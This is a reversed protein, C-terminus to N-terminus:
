ENKKKDGLDIELFTLIGEAIQRAYEEKNNIFLENDNKNSIFGLEILCSPMLTYRNVIYDEARDTTSGTWIGRITTGEVTAINDLILQALHRDEEKDALGIWVEVGCASSKYFNNRHISVLVDAYNENAIFARDTKSVERDDERTMIVEVDYQSLYDRILLSMELVQDKELYNNYEAGGDSGGHGPDICITIREDRTMYKDEENTDASNKAAVDQVDNGQNAVAESDLRLKNGDRILFVAALIIAVMIVIATAVIGIKVERKEFM